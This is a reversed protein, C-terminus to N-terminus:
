FKLGTERAKDALAKITGHYLYGNRDFRIAKINKELARKAIMEGVIKAAEVGKTKKSKSLFEEMITSYSVLTKQTIDDIIQAYIYRNSKFVTLRPHEINVRLRKKVRLKSKLRGNDKIKM